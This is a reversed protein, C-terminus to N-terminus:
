LEIISINFVGKSKLWKVLQKSTRKGSLALANARIKTLGLNADLFDTGGICIICKKITM